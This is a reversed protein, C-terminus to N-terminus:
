QALLNRIFQSVGDTMEDEDTANRSISIEQVDIPLSAHKELCEVEALTNAGLLLMRSHIVSHSNPRLTYNVDMRASNQESDIMAIHYGIDDEWKLM